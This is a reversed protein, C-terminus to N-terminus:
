CQTCLRKRVHNNNCHYPRFEMNQLVTTLAEFILPSQTWHCSHSHSIRCSGCPQWKNCILSLDRSM